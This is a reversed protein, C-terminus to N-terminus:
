RRCQLFPRPTSIDIRTGDREIALPKIGGAVREYTVIDGVRLPGDPRSASQVTAAIENGQIRFRVEALATREGGERWELTTRGIIHRPSADGCSFDPSWSGRLSSPAEVAVAPLAVAGVLLVAAYRIAKM